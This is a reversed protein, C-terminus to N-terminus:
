PMRQVSDRSHSRAFKKEANPSAANTCRQCRHITVYFGFRRFKKAFNEHCHLDELSLGPLNFYQKPFVSATVEM